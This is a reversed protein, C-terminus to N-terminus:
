RVLNVTRQCLLSTKLISVIQENERENGPTYNDLNKENPAFLRLHARQPRILVRMHACKDANREAADSNSAGCLSQYLGTDTRKKV